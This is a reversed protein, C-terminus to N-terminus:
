GQWSTVDLSLNAREHRAIQIIDDRCRFYANIVAADWQRGAGQRFIEEIRSVPMGQRYPRDSIMADFADAVATIRASLPTQDARLGQPYGEGDWQEHHHLVVPLVDALRHIDALIKHGLVPHTKIHEYEEPTLRGPKRLVQDNIGIKGIDHLLGAMYLTHLMTSGCKMERALRVAIRAVRDSHGCTYPDKADIASTLARVVSALFESQLRYLERNGSHAGLLTAVSHLLSAELTGFECGQVHNFAALWGYLRDSEALPAVILQRIASNGPGLEAGSQENVVTPGCHATLELNTVLNTFMRSDVPCRGAKIWVTETRARYTTQEVPSVPLLQIALGEACLCEFLSEVALKGLEEDSASIRLNQTIASLLSVEEYTSTLKRSLSDITARHRHSECEARMARRSAQALRLLSDVSWVPQQRVWDAARSEETALLRAVAALSEGRWERVVFPAVAVGQRRHPTPLPIAIVVVFDADDIMEPVNALAVRRVLGAHLLSDGHPLSEPQHVVEGLAADWLAFEVGFDRGLAVLASADDAPVHWTAAPPLAEFGVPSSLSM